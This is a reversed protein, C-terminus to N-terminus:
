ARRGKGVTPLTVVADLLVAVPDGPQQGVRGVDELDRGAVGVARARRHLHRFPGLLRGEDRALRQTRGRTTVGWCGPSISTVRTWISNKVSMEAAKSAIFSIM